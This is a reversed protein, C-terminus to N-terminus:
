ALIIVIFSFPLRRKFTDSRLQGSVKKVSPSQREPLGETSTPDNWVLDVHFQCSRKQNRQLKSGM